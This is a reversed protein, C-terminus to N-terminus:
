SRHRCKHRAPLASRKSLPHRSARCMSRALSGGDRLRLPLVREFARLGRSGSANTQWWMREAMPLCYRSSGRYTDSIKGEGFDSSNAATTNDDVDRCMKTQLNTMVVAHQPSEEPPRPSSM